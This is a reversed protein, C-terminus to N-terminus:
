KQLSGLSVMLFHDYIKVKLSTLTTKAKYATHKFMKRKGMIFLNPIARSKQVTSYFFYMWKRPFFLYQVYGKDPNRWHVWDFSSNLNSSRFFSSVLLHIVPTKGPEFHAELPRSCFFMIPTHITFINFSHPRIQCFEVHMGTMEPCKAFLHKNCKLLHFVKFHQDPSKNKKEKQEPRHFFNRQSPFVSIFLKSSIRVHKFLSIILEVGKEEVTILFTSM